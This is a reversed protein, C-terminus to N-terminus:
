GGNAEPFRVGISQLFDEDSAQLAAELLEENLEEGDDNPPCARWCDSLSLVAYVDRECDQCFWKAALEFYPTLGVERVRSCSSGCECRFVLSKFTM